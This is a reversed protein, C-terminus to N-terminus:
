GYSGVKKLVEAVSEPSADRFRVGSGAVTEQLKKRAMELYERLQEFRKGNIPRNYKVETVTVGSGSVILSKAGGLYQGGITVKCVNGQQVGAPFIYGIRPDNRQQAKLLVPYVLLSAALWLLVRHAWYFNLKNIM